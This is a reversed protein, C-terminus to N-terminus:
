ARLSLWNQFMKRGDNIGGERGPFKELMRGDNNSQELSKWEIKSYEAMM